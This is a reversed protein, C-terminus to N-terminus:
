AEDDIFDDSVVFADLFCGFRSLLSLLDPTRMQSVLARVVMWTVYGPELKKDPPIDPQDKRLAALAKGSSFALM